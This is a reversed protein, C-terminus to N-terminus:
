VTTIAGNLAKALGAAAKDGIRNFVLGLMPNGLAALGRLDLKADYTVDCGDDTDIFTLVDYSRLLSTIAQLVTKNPEDHELTEYVLFAGGTKVAYATGVGPESGEIMKSTSVGPDWESLNRFDAVYAFAEEASM